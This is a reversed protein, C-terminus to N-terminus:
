PAARPAVIETAPRAAGAEIEANRAAHGGPYQDVIAGQGAAVARRRHSDANRAVHTLVHAVTWGPLLSPRRVDPEGLGAIAAMFRAHADAVHWLDSEPIPTTAVRAVRHACM